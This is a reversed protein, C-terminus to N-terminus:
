GAARTEIEKLIVECVGDFNRDVDLNTFRIVRLGQSELFHSRNVDYQVASPEFHQGGDIEVVLKQSHCYFDVIYNGIPKQRQFRISRTSLFGYWLRREQPTASSRLERARSVNAPNYNIPM